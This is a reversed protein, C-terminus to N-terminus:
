QCAGWSTDSDSNSQCTRFKGGGCPRKDSPVCRCAPYVSSLRPLYECGLTGDTQAACAVKVCNHPPVADCTMTGCTAGPGAEVAQAPPQPPPTNCCVTCGGVCMGAFLLLLTITLYRLTM